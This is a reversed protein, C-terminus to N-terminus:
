SYWKGMDVFIKIGEGYGLQSLVVAMLDDAWIHRLETDDDKAIEAMKEKFREPTYQEIIIEMTEM